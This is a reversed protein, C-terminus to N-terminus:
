KTAGGVELSNVVERVGEEKRTMEAVRDKEALTSVRGTITVVGNNSDFNVDREKLAPDLDVLNGLRTEIAGDFDDAIKTDGGAVTVENAVQATNNVAQQVIDGARQRDAESQVQGTVHVVGKNTDYDADVDELKAQDLAKNALDEYDPEKRACAVTATLLLGASLLAVAKSM